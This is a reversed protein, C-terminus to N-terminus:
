DRNRYEELTCQDPTENDWTRNIVGNPYLKPFGQSKLDCLHMFKIVSNRYDMGKCTEFINVIENSHEDAFKLVWDPNLSLPSDVNFTSFKLDYGDAMTIFTDFAEQTPFWHKQILIAYVLETIGSTFLHRYDIRDNLIDLLDYVSINLYDVYGDLESIKDKMVGNTTLSVKWRRGNTEYTHILDCIKKIYDLGALTPEGGLLMIDNVKKFQADGDRFWDLYNKVDDYDVIDSYM